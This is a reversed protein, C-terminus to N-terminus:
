HCGSKMTVAGAPPYHSYGDGGHGSATTQFCAPSGYQARYQGLNDDILQMDVGALYCSTGDPFPPPTPGYGAGYDYNTVTDCACQAGTGSWHECAPFVLMWGATKEPVCPNKVGLDLWPPKPYSCHGLPDPESCSYSIVGTNTNKLTAGASQCDSLSAFFPPAPGYAVSGLSYPKTSVVNCTNKDWQSVASVDLCYGSGAAATYKIGYVPANNGVPRQATIADLARQEQTVTPYPYNWYPPQYFLSTGLAAKINEYAGQETYYVHTGLNYTDPTLPIIRWIPQTQAAALTPTALVFATLLKLARM